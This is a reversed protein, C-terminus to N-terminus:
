RSRGAGAELLYAHGKHFPNFEAIVGLAKSNDM